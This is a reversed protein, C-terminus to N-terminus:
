EVVANGEQSVQVVATCAHQVRLWICSYLVLIKIKLSYALGDGGSTITLNSNFQFFIQSNQATHLGALVDILPCDFSFPDFYIDGVQEDTEVSLHRM